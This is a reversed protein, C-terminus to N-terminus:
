ALAGVLTPYRTTTWRLLAAYGETTRSVLAVVSVGLTAAIEDLDDVTWRRQGNLKATAWTRGRGMARAFDARNMGRQVLVGEVQKSVVDQGTM